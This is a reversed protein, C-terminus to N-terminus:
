QKKEGKRDTAWAQNPIISKYCKSCIYDGLIISNFEHKCKKEKNSMLKRGDILGLTDRPNYEQAQNNNDLSQCIRCHKVHEAYTEKKEKIVGDVIYDSPDPLVQSSITAVSHNLGKRSDNGKADAQDQNPINQLKLSYEIIKEGQEENCVITFPMDRLGKVDFTILKKEKNQM